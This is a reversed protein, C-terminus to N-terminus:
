KAEKRASVKELYGKLSFRNEQGILLGLCWDRKAM